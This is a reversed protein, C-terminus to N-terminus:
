RYKTDQGQFCKCKYDKQLSLYVTREWTKDTLAHLNPATRHQQKCPIKPFTKIETQNCVPGRHILCLALLVYVVVAQNQQFVSLLSSALASM